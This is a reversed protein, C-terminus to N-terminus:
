NIAKNAVTVFIASAVTVVNLLGCDAACFLLFPVASRVLGGVGENHVIVRPPTFRTGTASRCAM